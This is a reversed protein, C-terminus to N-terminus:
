GTEGTPRARARLYALPGALMGRLEIRALERPYDHPRRANKSSRPGLVHAVARPLRRIASVLLSPHDVIAKTLYATLGTGYSFVQNRLAEYGRGHRHYVLAAPEYVLAYGRVLVELFAALDDGGRAPTGAGLAPDFGGMEELANTSFAMNAGSGLAGAAFPFLPDDPRHEGLDVLRRNPGKSFGAYGDLWVQEPTALEFPLIKGTVCGVHPALGFGEVIAALWGSEVVVDDDVFAVLPTDVDGLARNHAAALGKGDGEIYALPSQGTDCAAVTIATDRSAPADDVVRIGAAAPVQGQLSLLCERLQFPRNRTAVVVTVPAVKM